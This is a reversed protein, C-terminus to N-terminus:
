LLAFHYFCFVEDLLYRNVPEVSVESLCKVQTTNLIRYFMEPPAKKCFYNIPLLWLFLESASIQYPVLCVKVAAYCMDYFGVVELLSM